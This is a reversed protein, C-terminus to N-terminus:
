VEVSIVVAVVEFEEPYDLTNQQEKTTLLSDFLWAEDFNGTTEGTYTLFETPRSKTMIVYKTRNITM